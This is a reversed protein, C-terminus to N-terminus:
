NYVRSLVAGMKLSFDGVQRECVLIGNPKTYFPRGFDELSVSQVYETLRMQLWSRCISKERETDIKKVWVAM